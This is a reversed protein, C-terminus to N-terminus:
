IIIKNYKSYKISNFLIINVITLKTEDESQNSDLECSLNNEDKINLVFFKINHM